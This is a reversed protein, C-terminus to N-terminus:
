PALAAHQPAAEPPRERRSYRLRLSADRLVRADFSCHCNPCALAFSDRAAQRHAPTFLLDRLRTEHLNGLRFTVYCMQVTGDPGVWILEREICPARMAPGKMLWDPASRLGQPSTRILEPERAQAELLLDVVAEIAPRDAPLFHHRGEGEDRTFYPLSYHILNVTLSMDHRRALELAGSVSEPSCTSRMLLWDFHMRLVDPGFRARTAALSAELAAFAGRRGVYADYDEGVGYLGISVRRLGREHLAPMRKGLLLGNTTMWVDLGAAVSAGVWDGIRPHLLPEGGYLRVVSIGAAKADAILDPGLSWPLAHGPMFDRGYRCAGCRLNCDATLSLFLRRPAPRILAPAAAAAAHAAMEVGRRAERFARRVPSGFRLRSKLFGEVRRLM